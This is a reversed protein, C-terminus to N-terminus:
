NSNSKIKTTTFGAPVQNCTRQQTPVRGFSRYQNLDQLSKTALRSNLQSAGLLAIRNSFGAPVQNCTQQQTPVRGFSRYITQFDQLVNQHRQQQTPALWFNCVQNLLVGNITENYQTSNLNHKSTM